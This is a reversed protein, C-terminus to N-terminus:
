RGYRIADYVLREYAEAQEEVLDKRPHQLFISLSQQLHSLVGQRSHRFEHALISARKYDDFYFFSDHIFLTNTVTQTAAIYDRPESVWHLKGEDRRSSVWVAVPPVSLRLFALSVQLERWRDEDTVPNSRWATLDYPQREAGTLWRPEPLQPDQYIDVVVCIGALFVLAVVVLILVTAISVLGDWFLRALYRVKSM